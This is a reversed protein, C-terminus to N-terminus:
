RMRLEAGDALLRQQLVRVDLDKPECGRAACLAAATGSAQSHAMLPAMSRASQFPVQHCSICRGALVLGDVDKPVLARYPIDFGEHDFFRREGYYSPVPNSSVAVVDDFRAGSLADEETVTYLGDVLRGERVGIHAATQVLYAQEFGAKARLADMAAPVETLAHAQARAMADADDARVGPVRPGWVTATRGISLWPRQFRQPEIGAVRLMLTLPMLRPDDSGALHYAAGASAAVDGDGTADVVIRAGVAARGAKNEIVLGAVREAQRIAAAVWTFLM